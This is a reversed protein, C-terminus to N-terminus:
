ICYQKRVKSLLPIVQMIVLSSRIDDLAEQYDIADCQYYNTLMFNHYELVEALKTSLLDDNTLDGVRLARRAVKDEYAPGIGRGTTGIAGKGKAKERALGAVPKLM